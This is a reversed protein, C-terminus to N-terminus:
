ESLVDALEKVAETGIRGLLEKVVRIDEVSIRGNTAGVKPTVKARTPTPAPAPVPATAPASAVPQRTVGTKKAGGKLISSKYTSILKTDMDVNFKKKLHEQIAKPQADNGLEALTKRM